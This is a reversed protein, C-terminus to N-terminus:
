YKQQSLNKNTFVALIYSFGGIYNVLELTLIAIKMNKSYV